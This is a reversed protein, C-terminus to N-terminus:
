REGLPRDALPLGREGEHRRQLGRLVILYNPTLGVAYSLLTPTATVPKATPSSPLGGGFHCDWTNKHLIKCTTFKAKFPTAHAITTKGEFQFRVDVV